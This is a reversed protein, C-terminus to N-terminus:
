RTRRAPGLAGLPLTISVHDVNGLTFNHETGWACCHVALYACFLADLCDEYGKLARGRTEAPDTRVVNHRDREVTSTPRAAALSATDSRSAGSLKGSRM